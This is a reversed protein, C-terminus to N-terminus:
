KRQAINEWEQQAKPHKQEAAKKYYEEALQLNRETGVGIKLCQAYIFQAERHGNEAASKFWRVAEERNAPTGRGERYCDGLMFAAEPCNLEAGAKFSKFAEEPHSVIDLLGLLYYALPYQKDAARQYYARAQDANIFEFKGGEIVLAWAQEKELSIQLITEHLAEDINKYHNYAKEMTIPDVAEILNSNLCELFQIPQICDFQGLRILAQVALPVGKEAASKYYDLYLQQPIAGKLESSHKAYYQGLYLNAYPEAHRCNNFFKIAKETNIPFGIGFWYAEGLRLRAYHSVPYIKNFLHVAKEQKNEAEFYKALVLIGNLGFDEIKIEEPGLEDVSVPRNFKTKLKANIVSKLIEAKKEEGQRTRLLRYAAFYGGLSGQKYATEYCQLALDLNREVGRGEELFLGQLVLDDTSKKEAAMSIYMYAKDLELPFIGQGQYFKGLHSMATVNGLAVSKQYYELSFELNGEKAYYQGLICEAAGPCEPSNLKKLKEIADKIDAAEGIKKLLIKEAYLLTMEPIDLNGMRRYLKLAEQNRLAQDRPNQGSNEYIRALNKYIIGKEYPTFEDINKINNMLITYALHPNCIGLDNTILIEPYIARAVNVGNNYAKQLNALAKERNYRIGNSYIQYLYFYDIPPKNLYDTELYRIAKDTSVPSNTDKMFHQGLLSSSEIHGLEFSKELNAICEQEAQIQDGGAKLNWMAKHYYAIGLNAKMADDLLDPLFKKEADEGFVKRFSDQMKRTGKSAHIAGLKESFQLKAKTSGAQIANALECWANLFDLKKFLSDVKDILKKELAPDMPERKRNEHANIDYKHVVPKTM